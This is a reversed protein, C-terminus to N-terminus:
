RREMSAKNRHGPIAELKGAQIGLKEESIYPDPYSDEAPFLRRERLTLSGRLGAPGREPARGTGVKLGMYATNSDLTKTGPARDDDPETVSKKRKGEKGGTKDVYPFTTRLLWRFSRGKRRQARSRPAWAGTVKQLHCPKGQRPQHLSEELPRKGTPSLFMARWRVHGHPSPSATFTGEARLVQHCHSPNVGVKAGRGRSLGRSWVYLM